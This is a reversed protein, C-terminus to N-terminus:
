VVRLAERAAARALDLGRLAEARLREHEHAAGQQRARRRLFRRLVLAGTKRSTARATRRRSRARSLRARPEPSVRLSLFCLPPHPASPTPALARAQEIQFFLREASELESEPLHLLFRAELDLLTSALAEEAESPPKPKGEGKASSKGKNDKPMPGARARPAGKSCVRCGRRAPPRPSFSGRGPRVSLACARKQYRLSSAGRDQKGRQLLARPPPVCTLRASERAM